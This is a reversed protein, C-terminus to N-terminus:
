RWLDYALRPINDKTKLSISSLDTTNVLPEDTDPEYLYKWHVMAIKKEAILPFLKRIYNDQHIPSAEWGPSIGTPLAAPWGTEVIAVPKEGIKDFLPNLYNSPINNPNTIHFFPYLTLGIVDVRNQDHRLLAEWYPTVWGQHIGYGSIHEFSFTPGVQTAPSINKITDYASNYFSIWHEYDLLSREYYFDNEHGLFVYPPRHRTVFVTLMNLFANRAEQNLWSNTANAPVQIHLTEGNRWNFIVAPMYCYTRAKELIEDALNPVTGADSGDSASRWLGSWVIGPNQLGQVELFFEGARASTKPYGRPSYSVGQSQGSPICTVSNQEFCGSLLGLSITLLLLNAIKM